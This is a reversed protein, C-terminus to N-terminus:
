DYAFKLYSMWDVPQTLRALFVRNIVQFRIEISPLLTVVKEFTALKM